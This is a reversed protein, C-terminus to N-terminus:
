RGTYRLRKRLTNAKEAMPNKGQKEAVKGKNPDIPIIRGTNRQRCAGCGM